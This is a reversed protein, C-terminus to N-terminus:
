KSILRDFFCRRFVFYKQLYYNWLVGVLIAVMIKPVMFINVSFFGAMDQVFRTKNLLETLLYTGFTNFLISGIWVIVYKAAVSIKSCGSRSFTWEYNVICNFMGGSVSGLATSYVYYLGFINALVFTVCIDVLSAMQSSFLAKIFTQINNRKM